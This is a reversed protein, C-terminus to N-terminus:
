SLFMDYGFFNLLILFISDVVLLFDRVNVLFFLREGVLYLFFVLSLFKM